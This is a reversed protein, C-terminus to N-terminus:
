EVVEAAVLDEQGSLDLVVLASIEVDVCLEAVLVISLLFRDVVVDHELDFEDLLDFDVDVVDQHQDRLVLSRLAITLVFFDAGFDM